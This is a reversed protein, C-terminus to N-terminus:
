KDNNSKEKGNSVGSTAGKSLGDAVGQGLFFATLVVTLADVIKAAVAENFGLLNVLILTIVGTTLALFKKSSLVKMGNEKIQNIIKFLKYAIRIYIINKRIGM